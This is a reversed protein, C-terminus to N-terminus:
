VRFVKRKVDDYIGSIKIPVDKTLVLLIKAINCVGFIAVEKNNMALEICIGGANM